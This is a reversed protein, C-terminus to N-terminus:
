QPVEAGLRAAFLALGDAPPLLNVGPADASPGVRWEIGFQDAPIDAGVTAAVVSCLQRSLAAEREGWWPGDIEVLAQYSALDAATLIEVLEAPTRHLVFSLRLM